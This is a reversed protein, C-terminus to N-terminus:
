FPPLEDDGVVNDNSRGVPDSNGSENSSLVSLGSENNAKVYWKQRKNGDKDEYSDCKMEGTVLVKAGKQAYKLAYDAQGGWVEVNFWTTPLYEGDRNKGNSQGVSLTVKTVPKDTKKSEFVKSETFGVTGYLTITNKAM